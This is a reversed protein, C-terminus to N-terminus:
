GQKRRRDLRDELEHRPLQIRKVARADAERCHRTLQWECAEYVAQVVECM